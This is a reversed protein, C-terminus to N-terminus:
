FGFSQSVTFEVPYNMLVELIKNGPTFGTNIVYVSMILAALATAAAFPWVRKELGAKEEWAQSGQSLERIQRMVGLRWKNDPKIPDVKKYAASLFEEVKDINKQSTKM